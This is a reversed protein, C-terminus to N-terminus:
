RTGRVYFRQSDVMKGYRHGVEDIISDRGCIARIDCIWTFMAASTM